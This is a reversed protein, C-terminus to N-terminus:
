SLTGLRIKLDGFFLFPLHLFGVFDDLDCFISRYTKKKEM